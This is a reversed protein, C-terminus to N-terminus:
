NPSAAPHLAQKLEDGIKRLQRFTEMEKTAEDRNGMQRYLVALHYHFEADYPESRVAAQLYELAQQQKGEEVLQGALGAKACAAESDLRLAQTFHKSAGAPNSRLLEVEALQCEYRADGPNLRLSSEFEHQAEALSTDLHSDALIAQGLEFHLDPADPTIVLAARYETIAAETRGDNVLHEALARHLQASNPSDIALSEIAQFTLETYVRFAAYSVATDGPNAEQLAALIISAKELEGTQFEIEILKLGAERKLKPDDLKPFAASLLKRAEAPRGLRIECFGLLAQVRSQSPQLKLAADLEEAAKNWDGTSMAVVGLNARAEVNRPDLKLVAEYAHTAVDPQNTRLATQAQDMYARIEASSNSQALGEITMMLFLVTYGISAASSLYPKM